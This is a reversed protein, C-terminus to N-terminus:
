NLAESEGKTTLEKGRKAEEKLCSM